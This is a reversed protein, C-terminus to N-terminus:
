GIEVYIGCKRCESNEAKGIKHRWAQLNGRGTRCQVCAVRARRNWRLVRGMGAEKVRREEERMRSWAQKLGGETIQPDEPYLNTAENAL